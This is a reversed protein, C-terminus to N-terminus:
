KVGMELKFRTGFGFVNVGVTKLVGAKLSWAVPIVVSCIFSNM